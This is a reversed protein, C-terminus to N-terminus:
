AVPSRGPERFLHRYTRPSLHHWQRFVKCFHTVSVFGCAAAVRKQPFDTERLMRAAEDIRVSAAFRAPTMGTLDRFRRSFCARNMGGEAALSEVSAPEPLRAMIRARTQERLERAEASGEGADLTLKEWALVFEFLALEVDLPDRFDKRIAGRILRVTHAALPDGPSVTVLPGRTRMSLGVRHVLYPHHIGVWGVTWGTSEDPVFHRPLWPRITFFGMGPALYSRPRGAAQFRGGGAMILHFFLKTPEKRAIREVEQGSGSTDLSPTELDGFLATDSSWWAPAVVPDQKLETLYGVTAAWEPPPTPEPRRVLAM